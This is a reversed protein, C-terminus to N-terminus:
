VSHRLDHLWYAVLPTQFAQTLPMGAILEPYASPECDLSKTFCSIIPDQHGAWGAQRADCKLRLQERRDLLSGREAITIAQAVQEVTRLEILFSCALPIGCTAAQITHWMVQSEALTTTSENNDRMMIARMMAYYHLTGALATQGSWEPKGM